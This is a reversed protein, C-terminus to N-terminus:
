DWSQWGYEKETETDEESNTSDKAKKDLQTDATLKKTLAEYETKKCKDYIELTILEDLVLSKNELKIIENKLSSIDNSKIYKAIDVPIDRRKNNEIEFVKNLKNLESVTQKKLSNLYKIRDSSKLNIYKEDNVIEIKIKTMDKKAKCDPKSIDCRVPQNDNIFKDVAINHKEIALSIIKERLEDSIFIRYTLFGDERDTKHTIFYFGDSFTIKTKYKAGNKSYQVKESSINQIKANKDPTSNEEWGYHNSWTYVDRVLNYFVWGIVLLLFVITFFLTM